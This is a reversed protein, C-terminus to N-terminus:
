RWSFALCLALVAGIIFIRWGWRYFGALHEPVSKAGFTLFRGSRYAPFKAVAILAAGTFLLVLSAVFLYIWLAGSLNMFFLLVQCTIVMILITGLVGYHELFKLWQYGDSHKEQEM